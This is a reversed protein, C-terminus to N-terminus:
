RDPAAQAAGSDTMPKKPPFDALVSDLRHRPVAGKNRLCGLVYYTM